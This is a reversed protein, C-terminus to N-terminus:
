VSTEEDMQKYEELYSCMVDLLALYVDENKEKAEKTKEKLIRHFLSVRLKAENDSLREDIKELYRDNVHVIIHIVDLFLKRIALDFFKERAIKGMDNVFYPKDDVAFQYQKGLYNDLGVICNVCSTYDIAHLNHMFQNRIQMFMSLKTQQDKTITEMDMLLTLKADFSLSKSTNGFSKNEKKLGLLGSIIISLDHEIRLSNALVDKRIELGQIEEM